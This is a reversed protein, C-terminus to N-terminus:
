LWRVTVSLSKRTIPDLGFLLFCSISSPITTKSKPRLSREPEHTHIGCLLAETIVRLESWGQCETLCVDRHHRSESNHMNPNLSEESRGQAKDKGELYDELNVLISM